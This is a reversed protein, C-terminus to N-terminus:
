GTITGSSTWAPSMIQRLVGANYARKAEVLGDWSAAGLLRGSIMIHAEIMWEEQMM